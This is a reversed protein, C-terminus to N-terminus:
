RCEKCIYKDPLKEFFYRTDAAANKSDPLPVIDTSNVGTDEPEANTAIQPRRAQAPQRDDNSDTGSLNELDFNETPQTTVQTHARSHQAPVTTPPAPAAEQQPPHTQQARHPPM